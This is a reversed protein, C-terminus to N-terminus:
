KSRHNKWKYRPDERKKKSYEERYQNLSLENAGGEYDPDALAIGDDEWGCHPCIANCGEDAFDFKGCVPCKHPKPIYKECEEDFYRYDPEESIKSSYWLRYENLSMANAGEKRDPSEMQLADYHWGCQLCHVESIEVGCFLDEWSLPEFQFQKCVPCVTKEIQPIQPYRDARWYYKPNQSVYYEYRLRHHELSLENAGGAHYVDEESVRDHGWGCYPCICTGNDEWAPFKHKGCVPCLVYDQKM